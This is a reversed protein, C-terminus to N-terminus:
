GSSVSAVCERPFRAVTVLVREPNSPTRGSVHLQLQEDPTADVLSEFRYDRQDEPGALGEVSDAWVEVGAGTTLTVLWRSPTCVNRMRLAHRFAASNTNTNRYGGEPSPSGGPSDLVDIGASRCRRSQSVWAMGLIHSQTRRLLPM